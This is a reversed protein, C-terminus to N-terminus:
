RVPGTFTGTPMQVALFSCGDTTVTILGPICGDGDPDAVLVPCSCNIPEAPGKSANQQIFVPVCGSTSTSCCIARLAESSPQNRYVDGAQCIAYDPRLAQLFELSSSEKAGHHDVAYIDLDYGRGKLYPVLAQEVKGTLDGGFWMHVNRFSLVFAASRENEDEDKDCEPEVSESGGGPASDSRYTGNVAYCALSVDSDLDIDDETRPTLTRRTRLAAARQYERYADTHPLCTEGRDYVTGDESLLGGCLVEDLKGIHDGHYHTAIIYRLRFSPNAKALTRIFEVPDENSAANGEPGTGADILAATGSPAVILICNGQEVDLFYVTLEGQPLPPPPVPSACGALLASALILTGARRWRRPYVMAGENKDGLVGAGGLM